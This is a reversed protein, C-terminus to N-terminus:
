FKYVHVEYPGFSDTFGNGSAALTRDEDWVTVTSPVNVGLVRITADPVVGASQNLAILYTTSGVRRWTYEIPPKAKVGMSSPNITTQLVRALQTIEANQTQMEAVIDPAVADPRELPRNADVVFYSIGRAGHIIAHWIEGRFQDQTPRRGDGDYDSAEIYAFQPRRHSWRRLRDLASGIAELPLGANVPYVDHSVWDMAGIYRSMCDTDGQWDGPGNCSSADTSIVSPGGLNVLYPKSPATAKLQHYQENICDPTCGTLDPEDPGAFALLNPEVNDRESDVRPGRIMRLGVANAARTWGEIDTGHPVRIVTNVGRRKWTGFLSAPQFDVAIPFFNSLSAPTGGFMQSTSGWNGVLPRDTANGYTVYIDTAPSTISNSLHWGGQHFVGIGLRGDSDWDGVVPVTTSTGYTVALDAVGSTNSNRLHWTGSRYVGITDVGDGDWDGVVPLDGDDGYSFAYTTAPSLNSNSLLFRNGRHVGITQTGDGDWDGVIPRDDVRGYSVAYAGYPNGLTNTLPWAGGRDLTNTLSWTGGRFVGQTQSGNGDWDGVVPVDARIGYPLHFGDYPDDKFGPRSSRWFFETTDPRYM